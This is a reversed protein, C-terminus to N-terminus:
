ELEGVTVIVQIQDPIGVDFEAGPVFPGSGDNSMARKGDDIAWRISLEEGSACETVMLSPPGGDTHHAFTQCGDGGVLMTPYALTEGDAVFQIAVRRYMGPDADAPKTGLLALAVVLAALKM